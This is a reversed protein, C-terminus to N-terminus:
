VRQCACDRGGKAVRREVGLCLGVDHSPLIALQQRIQAVGNVRQATRGRSAAADRLARPAFPDGAQLGRADGEDCVALLIGRTQLALHM